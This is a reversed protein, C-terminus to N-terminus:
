ASLGAMKSGIVVIFLGIVWGVLAGAIVDSLFHWDGLILAAALLSLAVIGRAMFPPYKGLWVTGFASALAMHGSPFSSKYSGAFFQAVHPIHGFLVQLPTPVGFVIKLLYDSAFFAAISAIVALALARLHYSVRGRVLQLALAFALFAGGGTLPVAISFSEGLFQVRPVNEKCLLALPYDIWQFSVFIAIVGTLAFGLIHSFKKNWFMGGDKLGLNGKRTFGFPTALQLRIIPAVHRPAIM